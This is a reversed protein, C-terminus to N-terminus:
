ARRNPTLTPLERRARSIAQVALEEWCTPCDLAPLEINALMVRRRKGALFGPSPTATGKTLQKQVRVAIGSWRSQIRLRGHWVEHGAGNGLKGCNHHPM